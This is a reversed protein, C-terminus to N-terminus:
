LLELLQSVKDKNTELWSCLKGWEVSSYESNRYGVVQLTYSVSQLPHEYYWSEWELLKEHRIVEQETDFRAGDKAEYMTITKM